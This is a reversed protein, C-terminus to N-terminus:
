STQKHTYFRVFVAAAILAFAVTSTAAINFGTDTLQPTTTAANTTSLTATVATTFQWATGANANGFLDEFGFAPITVSYTTGAEFAASPTITAQQGSTAVQGSGVPITAFLSNDSVRRITLSGTDAVVTRNFTIVLPSTVSVGTQNNAPSFTTAFFASTLLTINTATASAPPDAAQDQYSLTVSYTDDPIKTVTPAVSVVQTNSALNTNDLTFSTSGATSTNLTLTYTTSGVFVLKVSNALPLVPLSFAIPIHSGYTTSAAPSTMTPTPTVAFVAPAGVLLPAAFVVIAM